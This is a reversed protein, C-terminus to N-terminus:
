TRECKMELCAGALIRAPGTREWYQNRWVDSRRAVVANLLQQKSAPGDEQPPQRVFGRHSNADNDVPSLVRVEMPGKPEQILRQRNPWPKFRPQRHPIHDPLRAMGQLLRQSPLLVVHTPILILPRHPKRKLLPPPQPLAKTQLHQRQPQPRHRLTKSQPQRHHRPRTPHTHLQTIVPSTESTLGNLPQASLKGRHHGISDPMRPPRHLIKLQQPNLLPVLHHHPPVVGAASNPKLAAHM